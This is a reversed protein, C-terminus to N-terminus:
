VQVSSNSLHEVIIPLSQDIVVYKGVVLVLLIATIAVRIASYAVQMHINCFIDLYDHKDLHSLNNFLKM